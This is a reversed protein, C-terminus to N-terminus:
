EQAWLVEVCGWGRRARSGSLMCWLMLRMAGRRFGTCARVQIHIHGPLVEVKEQIIVLLQRVNPPFVLGAAHQSPLYLGLQYLYAQISPVPTMPNLKTQDPSPNPTPIHPHSHALLGPTNIPYEASSKNIHRFRHHNSPKSWLIWMMMNYCGSCWADDCRESESDLCQIHRFDHRIMRELASYISKM